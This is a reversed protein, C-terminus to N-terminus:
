LVICYMVTCYLVICHLVTCYVVICYLVTCHLVTYQLVICYLVTCYPVTCYVVCKCVYFVCLLMILLKPQFAKQSEFGCHDFQFQRHLLRTFIIAQNPLTRVTGRRQSKYGPMQRVVSSFARFIWLRPLRLTGTPVIFVSYVSCYMCLSLLVYHVFNFLPVCFRCCYMCHYLFLILLIHCFTIFWVVMFAGFQM